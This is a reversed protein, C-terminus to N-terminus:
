RHLKQIYLTEGASLLARCRLWETEDVTVILIVSQRNEETIYANIFMDTLRGSIYLENLDDLAESSPCM